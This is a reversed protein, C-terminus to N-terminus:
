CFDLFFDTLKIAHSRRGHIQHVLCQSNLCSCRHSGGQQVGNGRDDVAVLWINLNRFLGFRRHRFDIEQFTQVARVARCLDLFFHTRQIAHSRRGHIQHVLRQGNLSSCRYSSRQQIGNGRDNVAVLRINFHRFLLRFGSCRNFLFFFCRDIVILVLLTRYPKGHTSRDICDTHCQGYECLQRDRCFQCKQDHRIHNKAPIDYPLCHFVDGSSLYKVFM